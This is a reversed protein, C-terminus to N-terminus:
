KKLVLKMSKKIKETGELLLDDEITLAPMIKLVSDKRGALEIILGKKYCEDLISRSLKGDKFDIGYILGKGRIEMNDGLLPKIENNLYEKLLKEKKQVEEDIHNENYYKLGSKAAVMSLQFGRFTGNHEGPKFVDIKDKLLLVSLPMGYAGISKSMVVMDPKIGSEEFSFFKGTRGCGVQIDDVIMLIDEEDCLKRLDKLFENSFPYIGGEAQVTELIIAAPKEIGSHDDHLIEKMYGITDFSNNMYYPPAIHTVNELNVGAGERAARETTLALSGLTMGHFAGMFAFINSRGKAKRALKIAMEIANTGTPGPFAIKYELGRPKIINNEFYDIFEQKSSTHMDLSHMIGDKQIYNIIDEKISENNHGFNLAGAGDFFDLYKNGNKDYIISGKATSFIADWKRCYSRVNSEYKDFVNQPVPNDIVINDKNNVIDTLNNVKDDYRYKKNFDGM